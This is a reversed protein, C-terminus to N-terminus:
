NNELSIGLKILDNKHSIKSFEGKDTMQIFHVGPKIKYWHIAKAKRIVFNFHNFERCFSNNIYISNEYVKTDKLKKSNYLAVEAFKRNVMRCITKGKKGIRHCAQIEHHDLEREEM